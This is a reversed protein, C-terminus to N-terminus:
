KGGQARIGRPTDGFRARFLRNFHSLDSFGADLALETITRGPPNASLDAFAKQLRKQNVLDVYSHDAARLLRHLYRATIGQAHAVQEISLHPEHFHADIYDLAAQLRADAVAPLHSEGVGGHWSVTLALLDFIHRRATERLALPTNELNNQTLTRLYSRLLPLAQRQETLRQMVANDPNVGRAAFESPPVVVILGSFTAPTFNTYPEDTRVMMAQGRRLRLERGLQEHDTGENNAIQFQFAGDGAKAHEATHISSGASCAFEFIGPLALFLRVTVDFPTDKYPKGDVLLGSSSSQQERFQEMSTWRLTIM